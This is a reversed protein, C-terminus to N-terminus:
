YPCSTPLLRELEQKHWESSTKGKWYSPIAQEQVPTCEQFNMADLADLVCDELDLDTFNM